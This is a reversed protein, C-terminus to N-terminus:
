VLQALLALTRRQYHKCRPRADPTMVPATTKVRVRTLAIPVFDGKSALVVYTPIPGVVKSTVYCFRDVQGCMPGGYQRTQVSFKPSKPDTPIGNNHMRGQYCTNRLEVMAAVIYASRAIAGAQIHTAPALQWPTSMPPKSSAPVNTVAIVIAGFDPAYISRKYM